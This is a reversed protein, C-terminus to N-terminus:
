FRRGPRAAPLNRRCPLSGPCIKEALKPSYAGPANRPSSGCAVEGRGDTPGRTRGGFASGRCYSVGDAPRRCGLPGSRTRTSSFPTSGDTAAENMPRAAAARAPNPAARSASADNARRPGLVCRTVGCRGRRTQWLRVRRQPSSGGAVGGCDQTTTLPKASRRLMEATEVPRGRLNPAASFLLAAAGAVHPAAASTGDFSLYGSRPPPPACESAPRSLTRNSAGRATWSSRGAAPSAPSQTTSRRQGWRFPHKTSRPLCVSRSVPTARTGQLWECRLNGGGAHERHRGPPHEPGYVRRPSRAYGRTTSSTRRSTRAPIRGRGMRPRWSSSFCETYSAPSGVGLAMNRCAIM